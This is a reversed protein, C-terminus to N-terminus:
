GRGATMWRDLARGLVPLSVEVAGPLARGVEKLLIMRVEGGRVKKDRSMHGVLLSAGLGEPPLVPLGTSAVTAEVESFTGAESLDLDEGLWAAFCMGVAVAEGHRLGTGAAELAHGLTHGFNLVERPGSEREDEAVVRSKLTLCREVINELAPERGTGSAPYLGDKLPGGWSRARALLDPDMSFGYKLIEGLGSGIERLPLTRLFGVDAWLASPQHFAGVLNKEGDLNVGTKGGLSSDVQSLLTTPIQLHPIGRMYTAAAFGAVDGVAGGGLAVVVGDRGVGRGSLARCLDGASELTKAEEGPPVHVVELDLGPGLRELVRTAYLAGVVPDTVLLGRRGELDAPLLSRGPDLILGDGVAAGRQGELFRGTGAAEPAPEHGALATIREAVGGPCLGATDVRFHAVSDYASRREQLLGRIRRPDAGEKLLPRQGEPEESLRRAIEEPGATLLFVQGAGDLRERNNRRLVTGGGTSIVAGRVGAAMAVAREELDRFAEEGPGSFIKPISTGALREVLDDTDLVPRNLRRGLERAVSGKGTGMFGTLILNDM